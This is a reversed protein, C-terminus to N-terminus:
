ELQTLRCILDVSDETPAFGSTRGVEYKLSDVKRHKLKVYTRQCAM